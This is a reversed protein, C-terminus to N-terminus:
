RKNNILKKFRIDAKLEKLVAIQSTIRVAKLASYGNGQNTALEKELSKIKDNILEEM